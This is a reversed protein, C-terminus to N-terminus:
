NFLLIIIEKGSVWNRAMAKVVGKTILINGGRQNFLLTIIEKSNVGNGTTAEVV